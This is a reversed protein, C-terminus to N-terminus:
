HGAQQLSRAGRAQGHSHSHDFSHQDQSQSCVQSSLLQPLHSMDKQRTCGVKQLLSSLLQAPLPGALLERANASQKCKNLASWPVTRCYLNVQQGVTVPRACLEMCMACKLSDDFMAPQAVRKAAETGDGARPCSQEFYALLRLQMTRTAVKCVQLRMM